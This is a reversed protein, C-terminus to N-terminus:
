NMLELIQELKLLLYDLGYVGSDNSGILFSNTFGNLKAININVVSDDFFLINNFEVKEQEAIKNLYIVKKVGWLIIPNKINILNYMYLEEGSFPNNIYNVSSSGKIEKFLENNNVDNGINIGVNILIRKVDSVLARTNIYNINGNKIIKHLLKKLQNIKDNSDFLEVYNSNINIGDSSKITLTLDFDFVFIYKNNDNNNNNYDFIKQLSELDNNVNDNSEYIKNFLMNLDNM